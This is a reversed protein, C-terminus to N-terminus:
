LMTVLVYSMALGMVLKSCTSLRPALFAGRPSSVPRAATAAPPTARFEAALLDTAWVVYSLMAVALVAALAPFTGAIGASGTMGAMTSGAQGASPAVALLMFLMALCEVLHPAPHPSCRAWGWGRPAAETGSGRAPRATSRRDDASRASASVSGLRILRWCFWATGAGFATWWVSAPVPSMRVLMAAMAAGMGIHLVDADLDATRRRRWAAALHGASFVAVALMAVALVGTVWGPATMGGKKGGCAIQAVGPKGTGLKGYPKAQVL